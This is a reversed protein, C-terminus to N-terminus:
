GQMSYLSLGEEGGTQNVGENATLFASDGLRAADKGANRRRVAAAMLMHETLLAQAHLFGSMTTANEMLLISAASLGAFLLKIAGELFRGLGLIVSTERRISVINVAKREKVVFM